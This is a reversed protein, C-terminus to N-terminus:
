RRKLPKNMNNIYDYDGKANRDLPINILARFHLTRSDLDTWADHARLEAPFFPACAMDPFTEYSLTKISKTKKDKYWALPLCCSICM